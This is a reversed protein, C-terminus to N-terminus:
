ALARVRSLSLDPISEKKLPSDGGFKVGFPRLLNEKRVDFLIETPPPGGTL